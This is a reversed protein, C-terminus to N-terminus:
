ANVELYPRAADLFARRAGSMVLAKAPSVVAMTGPKEALREQLAALIAADWSAYAQAVESDIGFWLEVIHRHTALAKFIATPDSGSTTVFAPKADEGEVIRAGILLSSFDSMREVAERLVRKRDEARTTEARGRLERRQRANEFVATLTPAVVGTLGTVGIAVIAVTTDTTSMGSPTEEAARVGRVLTRGAPPPTKL